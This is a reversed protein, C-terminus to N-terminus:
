HLPCRPAALPLSVEARAPSQDDYPAVADFAASYMQVTYRFVISADNLAPSVETSAWPGLRPIVVGHMANGNVLDFDHDPSEPMLEATEPEPDPAPTGSCGTAVIAM